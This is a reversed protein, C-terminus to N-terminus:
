KNKINDYTLKMAEKVPMFDAQTLGTAKMVKSCDIKRDYMRDYILKHKEPENKIFEDDDIYQFKVGTIESYMDAIQEWTYSQGSSITYTEGLCEKKFLLNAIIKGVNGGWDLAATLKKSAFPLTLTTNSEAAEIVKLGSYNFMDMRTESFSIVPRVITWNKKKSEYRIYRECRTKGLAYTENNLFEEDYKITHALLPAEETIPHQLDGYVRYSSLFILQDTKDTLLEHWAIYSEANQYMLFNVIGDYYRNELFEELFKLSINEKYVHLNESHIALDNLCIIDVECDKSLLEGAVNSGIAGGGAILLVKKM